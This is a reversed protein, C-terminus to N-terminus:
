FSILRAAQTEFRVFTANLRMRCAVGLWFLWRASWGLREMMSFDDRLFETWGETGGTQPSLILPIIWTYGLISPNQAGTRKDSQRKKKKGGFSHLSEHLDV